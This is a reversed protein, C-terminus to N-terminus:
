FWDTLSGLHPDTGDYNVAKVMLHQLASGMEHSQILDTQFM